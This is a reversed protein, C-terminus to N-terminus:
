GFAARTKEVACLARMTMLVFPSYESICCTEKDVARQARTLDVIDIARGFPM